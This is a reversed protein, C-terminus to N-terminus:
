CGQVHHTTGSEQTFEVDCLLLNAAGIVQVMGYEVQNTNVKTGAAALTTTWANSLAMGVAIILLTALLRTGVQLLTVFWNELIPWTYEFTAFCVTIAGKLVYWQVEILVWLYILALGAWCAWVVFILLMFELDGALNFWAGWHRASFLM